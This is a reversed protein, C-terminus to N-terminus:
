PGACRRRLGSVEGDAAAAAGAELGQLGRWHRRRITHRAPHPAAPDPRSAAPRVGATQQDRARVRLDPGLQVRPREPLRAASHAEDDEGVELLPTRLGSM